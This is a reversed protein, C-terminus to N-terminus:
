VWGKGDVMLKYANEMNCNDKYHDNKIPAYYDKSIIDLLKIGMNDLM